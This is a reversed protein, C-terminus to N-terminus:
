KDAFWVYQDGKPNSTLVSNRGENLFYIFLKLKSVYLVPFLDICGGRCYSFLQIFHLDIVKRLDVLSSLNVSGFGLYYIHHWKCSMSTFAFGCLHFVSWHNGPLNLSPNAIFPSCSLLKLIVSSPHAVVQSLKHM